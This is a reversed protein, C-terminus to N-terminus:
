RERVNTVLEIASLDNSRLIYRASILPSIRRGNLNTSVTSLRSIGIPQRSAPAPEYTPELLRRRSSTYANATDSDTARGVRRTVRVSSDLLGALRLTSLVGLRLSLSGTIAYAQLQPWNPPEGSSNLWLM